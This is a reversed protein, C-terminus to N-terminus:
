GLEVQSAQSGKYCYNVFMHKTSCVPAVRKLSKRVIHYNAVQVIHYSGLSYVIVVLFYNDCLPITTIIYHQGKIYPKM